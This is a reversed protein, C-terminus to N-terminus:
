EEKPTHYNKRTMGRQSAYMCDKSCHIFSSRRLRTRYQASTLNVEKNCFHCNVITRGDPHQCENSCYIRNRTPVIEGCRRCNPLPKPIRNTSRTEVNAKSLIQRVREKSVGVLEGIEILTMDPNDRRYAVILQGANNTRNPWQCSINCFKRPKTQADVLEKGCRECHTNIITTM